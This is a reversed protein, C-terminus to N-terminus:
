ARENGSRTATAKASGRSRPGDQGPNGARISGPTSLSVWGPGVRQRCYNLSVPRDALSVEPSERRNPHLSLNAPMSPVKETRPVVPMRPRRVDSCLTQFQRLISEAVPNATEAGAAARPVPSGHTM